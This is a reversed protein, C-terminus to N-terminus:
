QIKNMDRCHKFFINSFAIMGSACVAKYDSIPNTRSPNIERHFYIEEGEWFFFCGAPIDRSPNTAIGSYKKGLRSAANICDNETVIVRGSPCNDATSTM